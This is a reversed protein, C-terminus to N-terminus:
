GNQKGEATNDTEYYEWKGCTGKKFYVGEKISANNLLIELVIPFDNLYINDIEAKLWLRKELFSDVDEGETNIELIDILDSYADSNGFPRKPDISPSTFEAENISVCARKVMRIHYPLVKFAKVVTTGNNTITM